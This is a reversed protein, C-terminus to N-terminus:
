EEVVVAEVEKMLASTAFTTPTQRPTKWRQNLSKKFDDPLGSIQGLPFPDYEFLNITQAM